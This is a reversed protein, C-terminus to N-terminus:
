LLQRLENLIEAKTILVPLGDNYYITYGEKGKEPVVIKVKEVM